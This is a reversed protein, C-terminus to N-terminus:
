RKLTKEIEVSSLAEETYVNRANWLIWGTAGGDVAAKMQARVMEPTYKAGLNFDQLWPRFSAIRATPTAARLEDLVPKGKVLNKYVVDYPHEAPNAFGDFNPPYHSPYVMPSIYDFHPAATALRQGINLDYKHQWMTLGFLDVSMVLGHVSHLQEDLYTFFDSIVQAKPTKEDWQPFAMSSIAGDTPFRVYDFQVEDFGGAYAEKAVAANYAWADRSAPDVWVIGKKDSWVGGTKKQVAQEPHRSVYVPDQFVFQRAILYINKERLPATFERLTGLSPRSAASLKLADSEPIFALHGRDDKIDIVMANLETRDVLDVLEVFRKKYGATAASVYIGKVFSPAARWVFTPMDPPGSFVRVAVDNPRYWQASSGRNDNETVLSVIGISVAVFFLFLFVIFRRPFRKTDVFHPTDSM